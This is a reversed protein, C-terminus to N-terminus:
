IDDQCFKTSVLPKMSEGVVTRLILLLRTVTNIITMVMSRLCGVKKTDSNKGSDLKRQYRKRVINGNGSHDDVGDGYSSSKTKKDYFRRFVPRNEEKRKKKKKM